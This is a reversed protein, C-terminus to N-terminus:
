DHYIEITGNFNFNNSKNELNCYLSFFPWVISDMIVRVTM